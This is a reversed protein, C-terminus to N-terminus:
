RLSNDDLYASFKQRHLMKPSSQQFTELHARINQRKRADVPRNHWNQSHQCKVSIFLGSSIEIDPNLVIIRSVLYLYKPRNGTKGPPSVAEQFVGGLRSNRGRLIKTIKWPKGQIKTEM